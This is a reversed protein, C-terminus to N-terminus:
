SRQETKRCAPATMATHGTVMSPSSPSDSVSSPILSSPPEDASPEPRLAPAAALHAYMGWCVHSATAHRHGGASHPRPLGIHCPVTCMDCSARSRLM